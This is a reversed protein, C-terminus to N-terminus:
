IRIGFARLCSLCRVRVKRFSAKESAVDEVRVGSGDRRWNTGLCLGALALALVSAERCSGRGRRDPADKAKAKAKVKAKAKAKPFGSGPEPQTASMPLERIPFCGLWPLPRDGAKPAPPEAKKEAKM